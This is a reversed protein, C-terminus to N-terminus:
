QFYCHSVSTSLKKKKKLKIQQQNLNYIVTPQISFHSLDNWAYLLNKTFFFFSIRLTFVTETNYCDFIQNRWLDMHTDSIAILQCMSCKWTINVPFNRFNNIILRQCSKKKIIYIYINPTTQHNHDRGRQTELTVLNLRLMALFNERGPTFTLSFPTNVWSMLFPM